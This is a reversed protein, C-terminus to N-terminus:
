ANEWNIRKAARQPAETGWRAAGGAEIAQIIIRLSAAHNGGTDRDLLHLAQAPMADIFKVKIRKFRASSM